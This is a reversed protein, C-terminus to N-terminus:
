PEPDEGEPLWAQLIDGLGLLASAIASLACAAAYDVEIDSMPTSNLETEAADLFSEARTLNRDGPKSM